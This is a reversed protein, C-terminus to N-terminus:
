ERGSQADEGRVTALRARIEDLRPDDEGYARRLGRLVRQLQAIAHAKKDHLLYTDALQLRLEAIQSAEVDSEQELADLYRTLAAEARQYEEAEALLRALRAVPDRLWSAELRRHRRALTLAQLLHGEASESQGRAVDLEVLAIWTPLASPDEATQSSKLIGLALTLRESATELEEQVIAVRGLGTLLDARRPHDPGFRQEALTLAEELKARARATEGQALALLGLRELQDSRELDLQPEFEGRLEAARMALPLAAEDADMGYLSIAREELAGALSAPDEASSRDLARIAEELTRSARRFCWTKRELRGLGLLAQGRRPDGISFSLDLLELARGFLSEAGEFRYALTRLGGLRLLADVLRGPDGRRAAVEHTALARDVLSGAERPMGRFTYLWAGTEQAAALEPDGAPLGNELSRLSHKLLMEAHDLDNQVVRVRALAARDRAIRLDEPPFSRGLRLGALFDREADEYRGEELATSGRQHLTDWDPTACGVAFWALCVLPTVTQRVSLVIM